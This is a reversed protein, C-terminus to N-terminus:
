LWDGCSYFSGTRSAQPSPLPGDLFVARDGAISANNNIWTTKGGGQLECVLYLTGGPGIRSLKEHLEGYAREWAARVEEKSISTAEALNLFHDPNVHNLLPM